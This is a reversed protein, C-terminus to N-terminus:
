RGGSGRHKEIVRVDHKKRGRRREEEEEGGGVVVGRLLAPDLFGAAELLALRHILHKVGLAVRVFLPVEPRGLLNNHLRLCPTARVCARARAIFCVCVCM